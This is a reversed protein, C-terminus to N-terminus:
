LKANALKQKLMPYIYERYGDPVVSGNLPDKWAENYLNPYVNGDYRGLVSGLYHDTYNFADVLAIANHHVQAYLSRLQDNVLSAQRPTISGTSLFDGQHKHLLSLAYIGFLLQLQLQEKVGKGPTNQQLKEKFKSVVLLQCHAVAAEVLDSSLETFGEESRPMKSINQACAFSMRASRTEFAEFIISPKIWDESEYCTIPGVRTPPPKSSLPVHTSTASATASPSSRLLDESPQRRPSPPPSDDPDPSHLAGQDVTVPNKRAPRTNHQVPIYNTARFTDHPRGHAQVNSARTANTQGARSNPLYSRRKPRDFNQQLLHGLTVSADIHKKGRGLGSPNRRYRIRNSKLDADYYTKPAFDKHQFTQDVHPVRIVHNRRRDQSPFALDARPFRGRDTPNLIPGDVESGSHHSDQPDDEVRQRDVVEITQKPQFNPVHKM